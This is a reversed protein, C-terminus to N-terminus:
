TRLMNANLTDPQGTPPTRTRKAHLANSHGIVCIITSRLSFISGAFFLYVPPKEASLGVLSWPGLEFDRVLGCVRVAGFSRSPSALLLRVAPSVSLSLTIQFRLM